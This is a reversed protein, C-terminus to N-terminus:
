DKSAIKMAWRTALQIHHRDSFSDRSALFSLRKAKDFQKQEEGAKQWRVYV